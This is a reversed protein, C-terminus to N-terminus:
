RGSEARCSAAAADSGSAFDYTQLTQRAVRQWRFHESCRTMSLAVFDQREKQSWRAIRIVAQAWMQADGCPLLFGTTGDVVADRLGGHDAALVVGGAAAAEVAVLGFGEFEGNPVVINPVVVCLASAYARALRESSLPGLFEVRPHRLAASERTEWDTGAVRLRLDDPLLPLVERIFWGCGKREVLRGAFLITGDHFGTPMAGAFDTALPVVAGSRWGTEAAVDDTAHSNAVVRARRLVRAGLRLYAGYLRGKLGGRRPYSVDTGHASIAVVTDRWILAPVALPWIAMDGLHLVRPASRRALCRLLAAFAFGILALGGPPMGNARGPLALVEVPEHAALAETLRLCYTEMGGTAPAWKRTVFLIGPRAPDDTRGLHIVRM